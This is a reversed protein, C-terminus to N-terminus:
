DEDEDVAADALKDLIKHLDKRSLEVTYNYTTGVATPDPVYDFEFKVAAEDDDPLLTTTKVHRFSGRRTIKM